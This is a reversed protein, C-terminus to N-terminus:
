TCSTSPSPGVGNACAVKAHSRRASLSTVALLQGPPRQRLGPSQPKDEDEIRDLACMTAAMTFHPQDNRARAPPTAPTPRTSEHLRTGHVTLHAHEVRDDTGVVDYLHVPFAHLHLWQVVHKQVLGRAHDRSRVIRLTPRRDDVEHRVRRAHHRNPAEVGIRGTCQQERVVALERM